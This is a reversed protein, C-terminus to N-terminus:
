NGRVAGASPDTAVGPDGGELGAWAGLASGSGEAGCGAGGLPSVRVSVLGQVRGRLARLVLFYVVLAGLGVLAVMGESYGWSAFLLVGTLMLVVPLLYALAVARYEAGPDLSVLVRGGVEYRDMEVQPVRASVLSAQSRKGAAAGCLHRSRCASCAEERQMRVTLVGAGKSVGVGM